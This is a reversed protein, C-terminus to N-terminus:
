DLQRNGSGKAALGLLRLEALALLFSLTSEAGQNQNVRDERLGDGCGGTGPDYIELGLDNRGLYWEFANLAEHHWGADETAQYAGRCASVTAFAELPQQDFQAREQGKRYFGKSGIPRFHGQPAKQQGLLWRLARLGVERARDNGADHGGVIMAHALQANDYSLIDEFWPWQESATRDYLSLLKATLADRFQSVLRDGGLRSLYEHIGLLAFAWGRPSTTEVIAPLAMDFAHVAWSQLHRQRSRGVCAGLAWLARGHCDDSGIEEPWHRDFTLFNRFRKRAPNFAAFLFAAYTVSAQQIDPSDQGLDGLLVTLLLARANDDSCYGEIYNPVCYCAHQYIGIRDTLQWLHDLRWDPLDSQQDALTRVALPRYPRDALGHRARQFTELYLQAVRSWIMDRGLLYAKKRMAHRRQEDQFLGRIERAIAASDAFPVLIGRGDALLEEAHWYPTSVVAKGCGFAYALTGSTIQSKTLYPTIYLDAAGLFKSLEDLEVFRNHFIVHKKIGLNEALRQLSLRYREGQERILNPHTAGLVIYVFNPFDRTLEPIARLV